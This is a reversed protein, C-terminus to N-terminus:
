IQSLWIVVRTKGAPIPSKSRNKYWTFTDAVPTESMGEPVPPAISQLQKKIPAVVDKPLMLDFQIGGPAEIGGVGPTDAPVKLASLIQVVKARIEHPSDTKLIFRWIESDGAVVKADDTGSGASASDDESSEEEGSAFEDGGATDTRPATASNAGPAGSNEPPLSQLAERGRLLPIGGSPSASDSFTQSFEVLSKEVKSEYFGRLRPGSSIGVLILAVLAAGEAPTRIHWPVRRWRARMRELARRAASASPALTYDAEDTFDWSPLLAKLPEDRVAVPLSSRPLGSVAAVIRRYHAFREACDPCSELHADASKKRSGLNTGDLTDSVGNQFSFCTIKEAGPNM